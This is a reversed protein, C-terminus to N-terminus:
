KLFGHRKLRVLADLTWIPKWWPLQPYPNKLGGDEQLDKVLKEAETELVERSVEDGALSWPSMFLPHFDSETELLRPIQRQIQELLTERNPINPAYRLYLYLPYEYIGITISSLDCTEFCLHAKNFFVENGLGWKGLLGALSFIRDRDGPNAWWEAHPYAAFNAPPHPITGDPQQAKIIWSTVSILEQRHLAANGRQAKIIWSTVREAIVGSTVGLEDMILMATEAGIGTSMPCMIDPEIGHGFGGDDNQYCRLVNVVADLAGGEFHYLFRKRDLLRGHRLIFQRAKEFQAKTLM